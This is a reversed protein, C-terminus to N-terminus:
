RVAPNQSARYFDVFARVNAPIHRGPPYVVFIGGGPLTWEALVQQLRGRKLDDAVQEATLVTIGAGGAVLAHLAGPSDTSLRAKM